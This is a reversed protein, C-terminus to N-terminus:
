ILFIRFAPKVPIRKYAHTMWMFVSAYGLKQQHSVLPFVLPVKSIKKFVGMAPGYGKPM